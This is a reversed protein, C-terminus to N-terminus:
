GVPQGVTKFAASNRRYFLASIDRNLSLDALKKLEFNIVLSTKLGGLVYKIQANQTGIKIKSNEERLENYSFV